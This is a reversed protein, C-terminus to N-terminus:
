RPSRPRPGDPRGFVERYLARTFAAREDASSRSLIGSVTLAAHDGEVEGLDVGDGDLKMDEELLLGDNRGSGFEKLYEHTLALELAVSGSREWARVFFIRGFFWATEEPTLKERARADENLVLTRSRRTSLSELGRWHFPLVKIPGSEVISDAVPSGLVAAQICIVRDVTGELVLEPYRLVAVLAGAGGKSHGVLVVPKQSTRSREIVAARIADADESVSTSSSPFLTSVEAGLEDHTVRMNDTFYGPIGENLFGGVFLFHRDKISALPSDAELALPANRAKEERIKEFLPGKWDDEAPASSCGSALLAVLAAAALRKWGV